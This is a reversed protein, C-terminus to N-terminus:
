EGILEMESPYQEKLNELGDLILGFGILVEPDSEKGPRIQFDLLGDGIVAEKALGRKYLHLYLTQVLVGVAACLLNQGKSGHAQSAHGSSKLGLIRGEKRLVQIRIM